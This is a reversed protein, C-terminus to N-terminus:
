SGLDLHWQFQIESDWKDGTLKCLFQLLLVHNIQM